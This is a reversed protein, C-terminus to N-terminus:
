YKRSRPHTFDLFHFPSPNGDTYSIIELVLLRKGDQLARVEWISNKYVPPIAKLPIVENFDHDVNLTQEERSIYINKWAESWSPDYLVQAIVKALLKNLANHPIQRTFALLVKDQEMSAPVLDSFNFPQLTRYAMQKNVAFFFRIIELCPVIVTLEKDFIVVCYEGLNPRTKLPYVNPSITIATQTKFSAGASFDLSYNKGLTNEWTPVGDVFEKGLRIAPLAGWPLSVDKLIGNPRKFVIVLM